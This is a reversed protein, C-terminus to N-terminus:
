SPTTVTESRAAGPSPRPLAGQEQLKRRFIRRTLAPGLDTGMLAPRLEDYTRGGMCRQQAEIIPQDEQSFAQHATARIQETLTADDVRWNRVVRFLYHCSAATEPTILHAAVFQAGQEFPQGVARDSMHIRLNAPANWTVLTTRDIHDPADAGGMSLRSLPSIPERTLDNRSIVQEGEQSVRPQSRRAFGEQALQPHLFEAHTLDMLNDSVLMHDAQVHLVFEAPAWAAPQGFEQFRVIRREDPPAEGHWFWVIGDVERLPYATVRATRPIQGNGCPNDVCAGDPAFRLGHYPCRIDNGIVQGLSLPAFRHPCRNDLAVPLGDASRYVVLPLDLITRALPRSGVEASLALGYWCNKLFAM